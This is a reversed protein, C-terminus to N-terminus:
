HTCAQVHKGILAAQLCCACGYEMPLPMLVSCLAVICAALLRMGAPLLVVRSGMAAALIPLGAAPCWAVCRVKAGLDWVRMSRGSRVEWVRVTGDDSGSALWQGSAHVAVSRVQLAAGLECVRGFGQSGQRYGLRASGSSAVSNTSEAVNSISQAWALYQAFLRYFCGPRYHLSQAAAAANAHLACDAPIFPSVAAKHGLFRLALSTPFPQLDRPKPLKPVLAKADPVFLRKRRTRPCLYLDLCREFREKIFDSYAPVQM